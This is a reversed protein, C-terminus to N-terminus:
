SEFQRQFGSYYLEDMYRWIPGKGGNLAFFALINGNNKPSLHEFHYDIIGQWYEDRELRGSNFMEELIFEYNDLLENKKEETMSPHSTKFHEEYKKSYYKFPYHRMESILYRSSKKNNNFKINNSKTNNNDTKVVDLQRIKRNSTTTFDALQQPQLVRIINEENKIVKFYRKRPLGRNEHRILGEKVLVKIAKLQKDKSLTTDEQMNEVTNFFFGDDTLQDRDAFYKEKSILESYMIAADIGIAKALRKNVVISGDSRLLDIIM